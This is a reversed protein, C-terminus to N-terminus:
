EEIECIRFGTGDTPLWFRDEEIHYGLRALYDTLVSRNFRDGPLQKAENSADEFWLPQGKTHYTLQGERRDDETVCINREVSSNQDYYDMGCEYCNTYDSDDLRINIWTWTVRKALKYVTFGMGDSSNPMLVCNALDPLNSPTWIIARLPEYPQTEEIPPFVSDITFSGHEKVYQYGRSKTYPTNLTEIIFSAVVDPPQNVVTFCTRQATKLPNLM